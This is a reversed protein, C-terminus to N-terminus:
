DLLNQFSHFIAFLFCVEFFNADLAELTKDLLVADLVQLDRAPLASLWVLFPLLYGHQELHYLHVTAM